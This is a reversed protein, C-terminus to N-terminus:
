VLAHPRPDGYFLLSSRRVLIDEDSIPWTHTEAATGRFSVFNFRDASYVRGGGRRVQHLFTTDVRRPLDEMPCEQLVDRPALITGGQVLDVYRHEADAFRLLNANQGELHVYHAWKGVVQADTWSFARVLDSLFHPGYWNDDDMKAVYRGSAAERGRNFCAGLTLGADAPVVQYHRVGHREARPRLDEPDVEFGHTVLVLELDPHEQRGIFALVNDLRHPRMTPVVASISRDLVAPDPLDLATLVQRVRDTYLHGDFVRRHARLALRERYEHQEVLIRIARTASEEDDVVTVTDEFFPAISAAPTTVVATQAASLEFLRRACMTPSGVVSNVNLFVKYATSAALMHEYDLSGVVFRSLPPPFRYRPDSNRDMRSYIDLGSRAAATLLYGMQERREPHKDAFYTGAFAVDRARGAGRLMPNHVRPQAAFPMLGVRDHGLDRRYDDMRNADVTFVQDFLAATAIFRDYNPPDEKNWFVTPVGHGRCWTVLDRLAESPGAQTSMALRWAGRNGNWASEVFLLAPRHEELQVRWDQPTLLVQEWEYRYALESFEDLIVAVVLGPRNVPGDPLTVAALRPPQHARGLALPSVPAALRSRAFTVLRAPLEARARPDSAARRLVARARALDRRLGPPLWSAAHSGASM